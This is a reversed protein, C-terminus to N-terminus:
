RSWWGKKKTKAAPTEDINVVTMKVSTKPSREVDSAAGQEQEADASSTLNKQEKTPQSFATSKSKTSKTKSKTSTKKAKAKTKKSTESSVKKKAKTKKKAAQKKHDKDQKPAATNAVLGAANSESESKAIDSAKKAKVAKSNARRRPKNESPQSASDNANDNASTDAQEVQTDETIAAEGNSQEAIVLSDENGRRKRRRGGRRGRRKRKPQEEDDEPHEREPELQAPKQSVKDNQNRAQKNNHRQRNRGGTNERSALERNDSGLRFDPPILTADAEILAAVNFQAEISALSARKQNLIYLAVDPHVYITMDQGPNAGAEEEVVRLIKLASSNISRIRGTGACHPCTQSVSEALSPRLRQRSMELLGFHSISGVQIRARDYRLSDKLKREIASKNRNEEM